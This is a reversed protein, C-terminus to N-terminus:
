NEEKENKEKQEQKDLRLILWISAGIAFPLLIYQIIELKSRPYPTIGPLPSSTQFQQTQKAEETQNSGQTTQAYIFSGSFLSGTLLFFCMLILIKKM